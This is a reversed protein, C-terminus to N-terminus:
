LRNFRADWPSTLIRSCFTAMKALVNEPKLDMYIVGLMHLYELALLVEAAYFRFGFNLLPMNVVLRHLVKSMRLLLAHILPATINKIQNSKMSILDYLRVQVNSKDSSRFFPGILVVSCGWSMNYGDWFTYVIWWLSRLTVQVRFHILSWPVIWWLSM